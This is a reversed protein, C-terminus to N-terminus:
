LGGISTGSCEPCAIAKPTTRFAGCANGDPSSFLYMFVCMELPELEGFWGDRWMNTRVVRYTSM